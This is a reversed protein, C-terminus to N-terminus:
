LRRRNKSSKKNNSSGKRQCRVETHVRPNELIRVYLDPTVGEKAFLQTKGMCPHDMATKITAATYYWDLKILKGGSDDDYDFIKEFFEVRSAPNSGTFTWGYETADPCHDGGVRGVDANHLIDEPRRGNYRHGVGDRLRSKMSLASKELAKQLGRLERESVDRLAAYDCKPNPNNNWREHGMRNKVEDRSDWQPQLIRELKRIQHRARKQYRDKARVVSQIAM